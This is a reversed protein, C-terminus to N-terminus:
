LPLVGTLICTIPELKHYNERTRIKRNHDERSLYCPGSLRDQIAKWARGGTYARYLVCLPAVMRREALTEWGTKNTNAFKAARKQLRNLAGVQGKRYPDWCVAGYELIPRVLATYALRKTNSNGKKLICMVFHLAKWAKQLTYNVHEAWNLDSRIIIGLYKFSNAELQDGFYYNIKERV